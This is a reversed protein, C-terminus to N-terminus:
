RRRRRIERRQRPGVIVGAAEIGANDLLMLAKNKESETMAVGVFLDGREALAQRLLEDPEKVGDFCVLNVLVTGDITVAIPAEHIRRSM